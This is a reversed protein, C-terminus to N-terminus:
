CKLRILHKDNEIIEEEELYKIVAAIEEKEWENLLSHITTWNMANQQLHEILTSKINLFTNNSIKNNKKQVCVDCVNCNTAEKDNFYRAIFVSRCLTENNLYREM